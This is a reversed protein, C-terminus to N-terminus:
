MNYASRTHYRESNNYSSRGEELLCMNKVLEDITELRENSKRHSVQFNMVTKEMASVSSELKSIRVRLENIIAEANELVEETSISSGM